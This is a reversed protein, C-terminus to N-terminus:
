LGQEIEEQGKMYAHRLEGAFHWWDILLLQWIPEWSEGDQWREIAQSGFRRRQGNCFAVFEMAAMVRTLVTYTLEETMGEQWAGNVAFHQCAGDAAEEHRQIVRVLEGAGEPFPHAEVFDNVVASLHILEQTLREHLDPWSKTTM